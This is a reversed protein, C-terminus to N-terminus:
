LFGKPYDSTFEMRRNEIHHYFSLSYSHLCLRKLPNSTSGYKKDGAISHGIQALQSRIQHKYDTLSYTEILSYHEGQRIPSYTLHVKKGGNDTPSAHTKLAKKNEVIYSNVSGSQQVCGEVIAVYRHKFAKTGINHKVIYKDQYNKAFLLLGSADRDLINVPFLAIDKSRHGIIEIMISLVSQGVSKGKEITLIGNKKDVVLFFDDEYVIRCKQNPNPREQGISLFCVSDGKKLPTSHLTTCKGNVLIQRHTLYSKVESRSKPAFVELLFELLNAGAEVSFEKKYFKRNPVSKKKM